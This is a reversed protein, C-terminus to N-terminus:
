PHWRIRCCGIGIYRGFLLPSVAMAAILGLASLFLRGFRKGVCGELRLWVGDIGCGVSALALALNASSALLALSAMSAAVVLAPFSAALLSPLSVMSPKLGNTKCSFSPWPLWQRLGRSGSAMSARVVQRLFLLICGLSLQCFICALSHIGDVSCGGVRLSAALLSTIALM